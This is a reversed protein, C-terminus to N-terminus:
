KEYDIIEKSISDDENIYKWIFGKKQVKVKTGIWYGDNCSRAFGVMEGFKDFFKKLAIITEDTDKTTINIIGITKNMPFKNDDWFDSDNTLIVRSDKMAQQYMVNNDDLGKNKIAKKVNFIKKLAKILKEDLRNEDVLIKLKGEVKKFCEIEEENMKIM